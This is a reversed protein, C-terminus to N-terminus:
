SIGKIEKAKERATKMDTCVGCRILSMALKELAKKEDTIAVAKVIGFEEERGERLSKKVSDNWFDSFGALITLLPDEDPVQEQVYNIAEAFLKQPDSATKDVAPIQTATEKSADNGDSDKFTNKTKSDKVGDDKHFQFYVRDYVIPDGLLQGKTKERSDRVVMVDKGTLM